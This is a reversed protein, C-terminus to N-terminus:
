RKVKEDEASAKKYSDKEKKAMKEGRRNLNLNFDLTRQDNHLPISNCKEVTRDIMPLGIKENTIVIGTKTLELTPQDRTAYNEKNHDNPLKMKGNQKQNQKMAKAALKM